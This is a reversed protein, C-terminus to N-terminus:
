ARGGRENALEEIRPLCERLRTQFRIVSAEQANNLIGAHYSPAQVGRQVRSTIEVDEAMVDVQLEHCLRRAERDQEDADPHVLTMTHAWTRTLGEPQLQWTDIHHPYIEMFTTPWVHVNAWCKEFREPMGPMRKVLSQYERERDERSPKDRMPVISWESWDNQEGITEKVDLLRVLAPHAVPVHYDELYNDALIKWNEDFAESRRPGDERPHVVLDALNLSEFFETVPGLVDSLAPAAPDCSCFVMGAVVEVRFQPLAVSDRDFCAFGRASPAAALQGDLEYTWAHYPCRIVSRTEGAGALITSARHRCVNSIARLVGDHGRVVIVPERGVMTTLYHGAEAVESVHGALVWSPGFITDMEQEYLLPDTYARAPLSQVAQVNESSEVVM